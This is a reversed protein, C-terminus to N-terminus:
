SGTAGPPMCVCCGGACLLLCRQGSYAACLSGVDGLGRTAAERERRLLRRRHPLQLSCVARAADTLTTGSLVCCACTSMAVLAIAIYMWYKEIFSKERPAEVPKGEATM